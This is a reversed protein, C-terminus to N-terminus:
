TFARMGLTERGIILQQVQTTGDPITYCRADRFYREVPYEESLGYAGHVQIAKSTVRIAAETAFAKAISCEKYCRMGKGLCFFAKYALLRSAEIEASMDAIMEQILQFQGIKKGFQVREKAYKVAADLAAQAVGVASIAANARAFNLSSISAEEPNERSVLLHEKPVRCDEFFLEATPFSRVGLKHIERAVFPSQAKDVLIQAPTRAGTKPDLVKLTVVVYDAITGNSIWTKTGNIVYSDGDLVATTEIGATDSGVNPETIASCAITDGNL